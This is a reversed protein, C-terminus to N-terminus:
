GDNEMDPYYHEIVSPCVYLCEVKVAKACRLCCSLCGNGRVADETGAKSCDNENKRYQCFVVNFGLKSM